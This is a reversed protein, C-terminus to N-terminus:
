IFPLQDPHLSCALSFCVGLLMCRCCMQVVEARQAAACVYAGRLLQLLEWVLMCLRAAVKGGVEANCSNDRSHDKRKRSSDADQDGPADDSEADRAVQLM